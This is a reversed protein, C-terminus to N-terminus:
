GKSNAERRRQENLARWQEATERTPRRKKGSQEQSKVSCVRILTLLRNLHWHQADFPIQFASMWYYIVESTVVETNRQQTPSERFHTATQPAAIYDRIEGVNDESFDLVVDEDEIPDLLMFRMYDLVEETSLDKASLFSRNYKMEWKSLSILSHELNVSRVNPYVFEQTEENFFEEGLIKITLV